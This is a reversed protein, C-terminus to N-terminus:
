LNWGKLKTEYQCILHQELKIAEEITQCVRVKITIQDKHKHLDEKCLVNGEWHDQLIKRLGKANTKTVDEVGCGVFMVKGNLNM